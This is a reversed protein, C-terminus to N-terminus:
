LIFNIKGKLSTIAVRLQKIIQDSDKIETPITTSVDNLIVAEYEAM